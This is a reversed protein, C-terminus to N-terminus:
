KMFDEKLGEQLDALPIEFTPIGAAYPAIEYLGFYIGLRDNKLYFSHNDDIREFGQYPVYVDESKEGEKLAKEYLEEEIVKIQEKIKHSIIKQYDYGEKFLDKLKLLKGTELDINYTIDDHGGHAGGTYTYYVVYLSLIDKENKKEEFTISTAYPRMEYDYKKAEEWAAKAAESLEEKFSLIDIEFMQNIKNQVKEDELGSIIPINVDVNIWDESEHIKRKNVMVAHPSLAVDTNIGKKFMTFPIEFEADKTDEVGVEYPNFYVVIGNEKVYYQHDRISSKLITIQKGNKKCQEEVYDKIVQKYDEQSDFLQYLALTKGSNLDINYGDHLAYVFDKGQRIQKEVKVSMMDESKYTVKSTLLINDVIDEKSNDQYRYQASQIQMKIFDDAMNQFFQNIRNEAEKNLLKSIVPIQVSGTIYKENVKIEKKQVELGQKQEVKSAANEAKSITPTCGVSFILMGGIIVTGAVQYMIKNEM